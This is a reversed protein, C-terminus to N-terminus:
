CIAEKVKKIIQVMQYGRKLAFFFAGCPRLFVISQIQGYNQKIVPHNRVTMCVNLWLSANRDVIAWCCFFSLGM